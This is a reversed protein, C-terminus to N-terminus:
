DALGDEIARPQRHTTCLLLAPVLFLAVALCALMGLIAVWAMSQLGRYPSFLLTGFGIMATATTMVMPHAIEALAEAVGERDRRQRALANLFYINADIGIGFLLPLVVVNVLNWALGFAHMLAFTILTGAALAAMALVADRVGRMMLVLLVFVAVASWLGLVRFDTILAQALADGLVPVGTAAVTVGPVRWAGGDRMIGLAACADNVRLGGTGLDRAEFRAVLHSVDDRRVHFSRVVTALPGVAVEDLTLPRQAEVRARLSALDALFPAWRTRQADPLGAILADLSPWDVAAALRALVARQRSPAALALAPMANGTFLPRMTLPTGTPLAQAGATPAKGAVWSLGDLRDVGIREARLRGLPTDFVRGGAMVSAGSVGVSAPLRPPLPETLVMTSATALEGGAVALACGAELVAEDDAGAVLVQFRDLGIGLRECLARQQDFVPDKAPRLNRAQPDFSTLRGSRVLEVGTWGILLLSGAVVWGTRRAVLAGLRHFATGHAVRRPGACALFAPLGIMLQGLMLGLGVSAVFGLERVGRFGSLGLVGFAVITTLVGALISPAMEILAARAARPRSDGVAEGELALHRGFAGYLHIIFDVGLGILVTAFSVALLSLDPGLVLRAIGLAALTSPVLTIAIFVILRLSRYALGFLVLVGLAGQWLNSFANAQATRYDGAAIFHGGAFHVALGAAGPGSALRARLAECREVLTLCFARDQASRAPRLVLLHFRGQDAILFGGDRRVPGEAGSSREGWFPLYLDKWLGLADRRTLHPAVGPPAGLQLRREILRPSLRKAVVDVGADDLFLWSNVVLADEIAPIFGPEPRGDISLVMPTAAAGTAQWVLGDLGAAVQAVLARARARADDDPAEAATTEIAVFLQDSAGFHEVLEQFRHVTPSDPLVRAIDTDLRVDLAPLALLVCTLVSLGLALRPRGTAFTAVATAFRTIVAMPLPM